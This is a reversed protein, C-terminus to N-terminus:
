FIHNETKLLNDKVSLNLFPCGTFNSKSQLQHYDLPRGVQARVIHTHEDLGLGCPLVM